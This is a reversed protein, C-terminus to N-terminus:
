IIIIVLSMLILVTGVAYSIWGMPSLSSYSDNSETIERVGVVKKRRARVAISFFLRPLLLISGAALLCWSIISGNM